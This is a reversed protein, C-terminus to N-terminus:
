WVGTEIIAGPIKNRDVENIAALFNKLRQKGIMTYGFPPTWKWTPREVPATRVVVSEKTQLALFLLTMVLKVFESPPQYLLCSDNQHPTPIIRNSINGDVQLNLCKHHNIDQEQHTSSKTGVEVECPIRSVFGIILLIGAALSSIVQRLTFMNM